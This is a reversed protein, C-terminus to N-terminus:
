RFLANRPLQQFRPYPLAAGHHFEGGSWGTDDFDSPRRSRGTPRCVPVQSRRCGRGTWTRNGRDTPQLDFEPQVDRPPIPGPTLTRHRHPDPSRLFRTIDRTRPLCPRPRLAEIAYERGSAPQRDERRERGALRQREGIHSGDRAVSPFHLTGARQSSSAQRSLAGRSSAPRSRATSPMDRKM